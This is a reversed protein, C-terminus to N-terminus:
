GRETKGIQLIKQTASLTETLRELMVERMLDCAQIIKPNAIKYFVNLGEKRSVVIGKERLIALHQSVNGKSIGMRSALEDVHMEGERLLNIIQIRRPSALAKCVGAHLEFLMDEVNM